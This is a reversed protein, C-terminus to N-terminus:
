RATGDSTNSAEADNEVVVAGTDSKGGGDLGLLFGGSAVGAGQLGGALNVSDNGVAANEETEAEVYGTNFVRSGQDVISPLAGDSSSTASQSVTTSSDNGTGEADGTRIEATGDSTNSALADNTAVSTGGGGGPAVLAPLVVGGGSLGLAGQLVAAGNFSDNGVAHNEGTEAEADGYNDVFSSQDVIATGAGSADASQDVSTDSRNGTAQADGTHITATGDSWN